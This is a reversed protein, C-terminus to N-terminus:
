IRYDTDTDSTNQSALLPVWLAYEQEIHGSTCKAYNGVEFGM